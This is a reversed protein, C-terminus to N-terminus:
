FFSGAVFIFLIGTLMTIKSATSAMHFDNPDKAKSVQRILFLYPLTLAIAFYILTLRSQYLQPVFFYITWLATLLFLTILIVLTKTYRVGLAIPLTRCGSAQDGKADELDKIIERVLNSIFAFFAFGTTWFWATGCAESRIIDIGKSRALIAFELSVVVYPVMATLLSVTLNGIVFQKKLTTSYFWLLAPVFFTVIIYTEKRAVFALFLGCFVGVFSLILHLLLAERRQIKRSVLVKHPRNILDTKIDFYDNIAYGSAAFSLTALVLLGFQVHSLAPEVGYSALIPLLLGYRLLYQLLGVIILNKYRILELWAKM